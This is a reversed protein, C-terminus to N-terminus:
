RTTIQTVKSVDSTRELRFETATPTKRTTPFPSLRIFFSISLTPPSVPRQCWQLCLCESDGGAHGVRLSPAGHKDAVSKRDPACMPHQSVAMCPTISSRTPTAHPPHPSPGYVLVYARLGDGSAMGAYPGISGPVWRGGPVNLTSPFLWNLRPVLRLVAGQGPVDSFDFALDRM